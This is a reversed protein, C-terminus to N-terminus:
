LFYNTMDAGVIMDSVLSRSESYHKEDLRAHILINVTSNRPSIASVDNGYTKKWIIKLLYEQIDSEEPILTPGNTSPGSGHSRPSIVDIYNLRDQM